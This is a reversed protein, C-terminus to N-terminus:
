NIIKSSTCQALIESGNFIEMQKRFKLRMTSCTNNSEITLKNEDEATAVFVLPFAMSDKPKSLQLNRAILSRMALFRETLTQLTNRKSSIKKARISLLTNETITEEVIDCFYDEKNGLGRWCYEKGNKVVVGAAILVNLADYVRRLINKEETKSVMNMEKILEEAVERYSTPRKHILISKVRASLIKLGKNSRNKDSSTESIDSYSRKVPLSFNSYEEQLKEIFLSLSPTDQFDGKEPNYGFDLFISYLYPDCHLYRSYYLFVSSLDSCSKLDRIFENIHSPLDERM